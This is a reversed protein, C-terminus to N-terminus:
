LQFPSIPSYSRSSYTTSATSHTTRLCRVSHCPSVELVVDCDHPPRVAELHAARGALALIAGFGFAPSAPEAM